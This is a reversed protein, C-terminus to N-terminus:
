KSPAPACTDAIRTWIERTVATLPPTGGMAAITKRLTEKEEPDKSRRMADSLKAVAEGRKGVMQRQQNDLEALAREAEAKELPSTARVIADKLAPKLFMLNPPVGKGGMEVETVYEWRRQDLQRVTLKVNGHPCFARHELKDGVARTEQRTCKSSTSDLTPLRWMNVSSVCHTLPAGAVSQPAGTNEGVRNRHVIKGSAGDLKSAMSYSGDPAGMTSARDIQYLGLPLRKDTPTAVALQAVCALALVAAGQWVRAM